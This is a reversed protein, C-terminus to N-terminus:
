NVEKKPMPPVGMRERAENMTCREGMIVIEKKPMPPVNKKEPIKQPIAKDDAIRSIFFGIVIGLAVSADILLFVIM